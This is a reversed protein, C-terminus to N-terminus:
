QHDIKNEHKSSGSLREARMEPPLRTGSVLTCFEHLWRKGSKLLFWVSFPWIGVDQVIQTFVEHSTLRGLRSLQEAHYSASVVAQYPVRRVDQGLWSGDFHHVAVNHPVDVCFTSSPYVALGDRGMQFENRWPDIAFKTEIIRSVLETNTVTDFSAEDYYRTVARALSHGQESGWVATFPKGILEFGTFARHELFPDLSARLEVDADLYVGGFRELVEARAYDSAFAYAKNAIATAFFDNGHQAFTM